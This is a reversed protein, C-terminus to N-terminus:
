RISQMVELMAPAELFGQSRGHLIEGRSDIFVVRPLGTVQFLKKIAAMEEDDPATADFKITVFRLSEEVVAPDKWVLKDLKKCYVCWEAWFDIMVPKGAAKAEALRADLIPRPGAGTALVEWPVKAPLSATAAGAVGPDADGTLSRTPDRPMAAPPVAEVAPRPMLNTHWILGGLFFHLGFLFVILGLGKRARPWWSEASGLGEFAGMFVSVLIATAGLLPYFATVPLVAGPRVFYFAMALLLLGMFNKVTVMWGGSRPMSGLLAPFTGVGILLLGMGIGFTFLSFFGLVWNGTTGVWVLLAALFPGVCPSAVLGAVMGMVFAGIFGGRKGTRGSGQLRDRIFAPAELEFAGFMGFSLAVLLLALPVLVAPSQMFATIGSFVTASLAGLIAYVLAMGVVYTVSMVLGHLAGKEQSQAGIVALTIPIMPYICPSLSMLLGFGFVVVLFLGLGRREIFATIKDASWDEGFDVTVPGEWRGEVVTGDEQMATATVILDRVGPETGTPIPAAWEFRAPSPLFGQDRGEPAASVLRVPYPEAPFLPDAADRVAIAWGEALLKAGPGPDVAVDLVLDKGIEAVESRLSVEVELGPIPTQGSAPSIFLFLPLALAAAPSLTKRTM